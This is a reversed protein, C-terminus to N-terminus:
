AVLFVPVELGAWVDRGPLGGKAVGGEYIPLSGSAVRRWAPTKSQENFRFQLKKTDEDASKGVFRHVSKSEIGGRRDWSRWASFVPGPIYLLKKFLSTDKENPPDAKPCVAVLGVVHESTISRPLSTTSALKAAFSAGMSHGILVVGQGNDKDRYDEIIIDLLETLAETQYAAWDKPELGSM